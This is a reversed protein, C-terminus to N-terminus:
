EQHYNTTVRNGHYSSVSRVQTVRTWYDSYLL